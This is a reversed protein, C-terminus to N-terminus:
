SRKVPPMNAVPKSYDSACSICEIQVDGWQSQCRFEKPSSWDSPYRIVLRNAGNWQIELLRRDHGITFITATGLKRQWLM